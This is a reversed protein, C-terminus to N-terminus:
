EYLENLQDTLYKILGINREYDMRMPGVITMSGTFNQPLHYRALMVTEDKITDIPNEGGIMIKLNPFMQAELNRFFEKEMKGVVKEFDDFFSTLKFVKDFEQFEPHDFLESIGVKFFDRSDIVNTIVLSDSLESILKALTKNIEQPDTELNELTLAVKKKISVDPDLDKVLIQDVFYRYAKDTPIRGGSTHLQVLYGRSELDNMENRITAPSVSFSGTKGILKSSVPEATEVYTQIITRILKDQRPSLFM